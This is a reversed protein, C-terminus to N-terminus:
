RASVSSARCFYACAATLDDFPREHVAHVDDAIQEARAFHEQRLDHFRARTIFFATAYRSGYMSASFCARERGAAFHARLAFHEHGRDLAVHVVDALVDDADHEAAVVVLHDIEAHHHRALLDEVGRALLLDVDDAQASQDRRREVLHHVDRALHLAFTELQRQEDAARGRALRVRRHLDRRGVVARDDM